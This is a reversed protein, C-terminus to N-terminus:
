GSEVIDVAASYRSASIARKPFEGIQSLVRGARFANFALAKSKASESIGLAARDIVEGVEIVGEILQGADDVIEVFGTVGM